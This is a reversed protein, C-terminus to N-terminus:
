ECIFIAYFHSENSANILNEWLLYCLGKLILDVSFLDLFFRQHRSRLGIIFRLYLNLYCWAKM